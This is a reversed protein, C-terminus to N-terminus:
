PKLKTLSEFLVDVLHQIESGEDYVGQNREFDTVFSRIANALADRERKLVCAYRPCEDHCSHIGAVDLREIERKAAALSDRADGLEKTKKAVVSFWEDRQALAEALERELTSAFEALVVDGGNEFDPFSEADTRPTDSM